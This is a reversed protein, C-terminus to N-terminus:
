FNHLLDVQKKKLLQKLCLKKMVRDTEHNGNILLIKIKLKNLKNLIFDLGEEFISIDGASVLLDPKNKKIKLKIKKLAISSLHLDTFALLKM